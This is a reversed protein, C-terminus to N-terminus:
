ETMGVPTAPKKKAGDAARRGRLPPVTAVLSVKGLGSGCGRNEAFRPKGRATKAFPPSIKEAFGANTKKKRGRRGEM